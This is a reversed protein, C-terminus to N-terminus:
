PTLVGEQRALQCHGQSDTRYAQGGYHVTVPFCRPASFRLTVGDTQPECTMVLKGYPTHVEQRAPWLSPDGLPSLTIGDGALRAGLLLADHYRPSLYKDNPRNRTNWSEPAGTNYQHTLRLAELMWDQEGYLRMFAPYIHLAMSVWAQLAHKGWKERTAHFAYPLWGVDDRLYYDSMAKLVPLLAPDPQVGDQLGAELIDLMASLCVGTMYLASLYGPHPGAGMQGGIVGQTQVVSTAMHLLEHSRERAHESDFQRWIQAWGSFEFADRGIACRPWNARFWGWYREACQEMTDYLYLDGTELYGYLLDRFFSYACTKWGEGGAWQRISFDRHDVMIDAWFYCYDLGDHFM